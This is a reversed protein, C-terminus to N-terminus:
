IGARTSGIGRVAAIPSSAPPRLPEPAPPAAALPQPPPPAPARATSPRPAASARPADPPRGALGARVLALVAELRAQQAAPELAGYGRLPAAVRAPLDALAPPLAGALDHELAAGLRELGGFVLRDGGGRRQEHEIVRLTQQLRERWREVPPSVRSPPAAMLASRRTRHLRLGGTRRPRRARGRDRGGRDGAGPLAAGAGRRAGRGGAPRCRPPRRPARRQAARGRARGPPPRSRRPDARAGAAAGPRAGGAAAAERAVVDRRAGALTRNPWWAGPVRAHGGRRLPPPAPHSGRGRGRRA